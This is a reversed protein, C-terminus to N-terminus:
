CSSPQDPPAILISSSRGSSGALEAYGEVLSEGSVVVYRGLGLVVYRAVASALTWLTYWTRCRGCEVTPGAPRAAFAFVPRRVPDYGCHRDHRPAAVEPALAVRRWAPIPKEVVRVPPLRGPPHPTLSRAFV